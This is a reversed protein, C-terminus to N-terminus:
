FQLFQGKEHVVRLLNLAEISSTINRFLQNSYDDERHIVGVVHKAFLDMM